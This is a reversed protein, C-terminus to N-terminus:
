VERQADTPAAAPFDLRRASDFHQRRGTVPDTFSLQKALLQLPEDYERQLAAPDGAPDPHWRPYLRDNLIPLGLAALHVRLQHRQGTRPRLAYRALGARQEILDIGTEANPEGPVEHMQMFADPSPALRSHRVFPFRLDPRHPAIAEYLKEVRRERFMAHYADRTARRLSFLVLGATDRDIRHVPVVEENGLRRRLRVLVTEQLHRGAPMVPLGHPKDVVAIDADVHVLTEVRPNGPEDPVSRFYTLTRNPTYASGADVPEGREDLVDGRAMRDRWEDPPIRPFRACLFDLLTPWPGPPLGVRSPGVGLREAPRM